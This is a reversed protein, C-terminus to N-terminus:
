ALAFFAPPEPWNSTPNVIGVREIDSFVGMDSNNDNCITSSYIYCFVVDNIDITSTSAVLDPLPLPSPTLTASM